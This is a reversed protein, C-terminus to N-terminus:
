ESNKRIQVKRYKFLIRYISGIRFSVPWFSESYPRKERLTAKSWKTETRNSLYSTKEGGAWRVCKIYCFKKLFRQPSLNQGRAYLSPQFCTFEKWLFWLIINNKLFIMKHVLTVQLLTLCWCQTFLKRIRLKEPRYKGANPSLVSIQEAFRRMWDLHPFILVLFFDSYPCKKRLWLCLSM